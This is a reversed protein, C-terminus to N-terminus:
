TDCRMRAEGYIDCISKKICGQGKWRMDQMATIDAKIKAQAETLQISSRERNLSRFKWTKKKKMIKKIGSMACELHM